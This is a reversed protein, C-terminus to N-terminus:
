EIVEDARPLTPLPACRPQGAHAFDSARRAWAASRCVIKGVRLIKM